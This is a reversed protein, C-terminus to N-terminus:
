IYIYRNSYDSYNLNPFFCMLEGRCRGGSNWWSCPRTRWSPCGWRKWTTAPQALSQDPSFVVFIHIITSSFSVLQLYFCSLGIYFWAPLNKTVHPVLWRQSCRLQMNVYSIGMSSRPCTTNWFLIHNHNFLNDFIYPHICWIWSMELSFSDIQRHTQLVESKQHSGMNVLHKSSLNQDRQDSGASILCRPECPLSTYVRCARTAPHQPHYSQVVFYPILVIFLSKIHNLWWCFRNKKAHVFASFFASNAAAQGIDKPFVRSLM